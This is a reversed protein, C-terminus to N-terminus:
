GTPWSQRDQRRPSRLVGGRPTSIGRSAGVVIPEIVGEFEPMAVSWAVQSGLGEPDDLWQKRDKYYSIVPAFVPVGLRKLVEVGSPADSEKIGGRESGLFFASLKVVADVRPVQGEMLFHEVVEVGSMNGLHDDKLSYYFVPIVGLGRAKSPASLLAKWRWTGTSGTPAPSSSAWLLRRSSPSSGRTLPFSLRGHTPFVGPIAPHHIGEWPLPEPSEFTSRKRRFPPESSLRAHEAHQRRRRLPYVQLRHGHDGPQCKVPRLIVARTGVVVVPIRDKLTLVVQELEEWFDDSTRYLLVLDAKDIESAIRSVLEPERKIQKTSYAALEIGLVHAAESLLPLYSSWMISLIRM